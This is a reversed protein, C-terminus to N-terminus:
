SSRLHTSHNGYTQVWDNRQNSIELDPIFIQDFAPSAAFDKHLLFCCILLILLFSLMFIIDISTLALSTYKQSQLDKIFQIM